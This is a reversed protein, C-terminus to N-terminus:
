FVVIELSKSINPLIEVNVAVSNLKVSSLRHNAVDHVGMAATPTIM